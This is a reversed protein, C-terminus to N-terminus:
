ADRMPIHKERKEREFRIEILLLADCTRLELKDIERDIPKIYSLYEEETIKKAKYLRYYAELVTHFFDLYNSDM